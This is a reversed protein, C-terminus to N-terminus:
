DNYDPAKTPLLAIGFWYDKMAKIAKTLGEFEVPKQIYTSAGFAYCEEVDKPDNSTTLIITPISAMERDAKLEKLLQRGDLGPMNLDLLMLCPRCVTDDNIYKGQKYLYDRADSGSKCWYVPNLLHNKRLSRLTAEYDDHNDDVLLILGLEQKM